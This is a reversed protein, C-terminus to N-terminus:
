ISTKDKKPKSAWGMREKTKVNLLKEEQLKKQPHVRTQLRIEKLIELLITRTKCRGVHNETENCEKSM